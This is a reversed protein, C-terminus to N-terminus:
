LPRTSRTAAYIANEQRFHWSYIPIMTHFYTKLVNFHQFQKIIYRQVTLKACIFLQIALCSGDMDVHIQAIDYLTTRSKEWMKIGYFFIKISKNQESFFPFVLLNLILDLREM